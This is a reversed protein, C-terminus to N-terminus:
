PVLNQTVRDRVSFDAPTAAFSDAALDGEVSGVARRAVEKRAQRVDGPMIEATLQGSKIIVGPAEGDEVRRVLRLLSEAAKESVVDTPNGGRRVENAAVVVLRISERAILDGESSRTMPVCSLVASSTRLDRVIWEVDSKKGGLDSAMQRLLEFWDDVMAAFTELSVRDGLAPNGQITFEVPEQPTFMAREEGPSLFMLEIKAYQVSIWADTLGATLEADIREAEM